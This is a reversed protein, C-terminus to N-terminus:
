KLIKFASQHEKLTYGVCSETLTITLDFIYM